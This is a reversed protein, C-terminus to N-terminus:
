AHDAHHIESGILCLPHARIGDCHFEILAGGAPGFVEPFLSADWYHGGHAELHPEEARPCPREPIAVDELACSSEVMCDVMESWHERLWKEVHRQVVEEPLSIVTHFGEVRVRARLAQITLGTDLEADEDDRYASGAFSAFFEMADELQSRTPLTTTM